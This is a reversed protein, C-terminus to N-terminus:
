PGTYRAEAPVKERALADQHRKELWPAVSGFWKRQKAESQDSLWGDCAALAADFDPIAHFRARFDDYDRRNLRAVKGQFAYGSNGGALPTPPTHEKETETDTEPPTESVTKSRQRCRKVRETSTDSKYQREAWGHPAYAYGDAGGSVKDILGGNLLREVVTLAADETVRLAFAIGSIAPLRGKNKSALCLLNVWAKFTEGDLLQVKPDNLAEDHFRFWRSM